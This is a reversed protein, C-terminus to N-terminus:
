RPWIRVMQSCGTGTTGIRLRGSQDRRPDFIVDAGHGNDDWNALLDEHIETKFRREHYM